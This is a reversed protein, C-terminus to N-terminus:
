AQPSTYTVDEWDKVDIVKGHFVMHNGGCLINLAECWTKYAEHHAQMNRDWCDDEVAGHSVWEDFFKSAMDHHYIAREEFASIKPQLM